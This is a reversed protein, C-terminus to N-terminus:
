LGNTQPTATLNVCREGGIQIGSGPCQATPEHPDTHTVLNWASIGEIPLADVVTECVPCVLKPEVM